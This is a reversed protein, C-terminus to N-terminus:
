NELELQDSSVDATKIIKCAFFAERGEQPTLRVTHVLSPHFTQAGWVTLGPRPNKIALSIPQLSANKQRRILWDIVAENEEPALTCTSYVLTGGPKLLQWAQHIIRKQLTALRHVHAVSWTDLTKPDTLNILGEGSCPADLLIKDFTESMTRTLRTADLLTYSAAAGLRAMNAQLKHLRARSNDNAVLQGLNNTRAAIHSTKGGPAACVDLITDSPQIDLLEVPLWSAENQIYILGDDILSSDRLAEFGQSITYSNPSWSVAEGEWGLQKMANLTDNASGQLPNIRVSQVLSQSFLGEAKEIDCNLIKSTRELFARRKQPRKKTPDSRKAMHTNYM